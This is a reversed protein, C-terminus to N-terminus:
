QPDIDFIEAWCNEKLEGSIKLLPSPILYIPVSLDALSFIGKSAVISRDGNSVEISAMDIAYGLQELHDGVAIDYCVIAKPQNLKVFDEFISRSLELDNESIETNRLSRFPCFYGISIGLEPFYRDFMGKTGGSPQYEITSIKKNARYRKKREAQPNYHLLLVGDQVPFHPSLQYFWKHGRKDCYSKIDSEKYLEAVRKLLKQYPLVADDSKQKEEIEDVKKRVLFKTRKNPHIGITFDPYENEDIQEPNLLELDIQKKFKDSSLIRVIIKDGIKYQHTRSRIVFRQDDVYFDDYMRNFRIMGECYNSQLIAYVGHDTIGSINAEFVEGVHNELFEAQKFKISAREAEMADREKKSIHKCIEDLKDKNMQHSSGSLYDQLIRHAIVDAYRRIPSTFHVYNKFGLGYHGINDQEYAAKAMTRIAMQQLINYEPSDEAETLVKHFAAKIDESQQINMEYGLLKAFHVFDMVKEMNPEDHVRYIMPWRKGLQFLLGDMLNGVAQNALLMFDEILMNSAKREKLYVEVPVGEENLKFRVEPSEFNISGKKMRKKRLKEALHNLLLLDDKFVDEKGELIEQAEEYTFRRDSHIITKGFWEAQIEGQRDLEFVASFTLKDENPRLSCVGNSLKEPLMPLVRDVLYVSTTRKAAEKDLATDPLVYHTVDAIHVGVEINGNELTQISLADDFDKATAPDITFTNIARMDKRGELDETNIETRIQDNENIVEEPFILNFGKDILIANMELENSNAEGLSTVIEGKHAGSNKSNWETIKVVVKSGTPINKDISRPDILVDANLYANNTEVFTFKPHM